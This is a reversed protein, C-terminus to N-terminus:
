VINQMIIEWHHSCIFDFKHIEGVPILIAASKLGSHGGHADSSRQCPFSSNVRGTHHGIRSPPVSVSMSRRWLADANQQALSRRSLDSTRDSLLTTALAGPRPSLWMGSPTRPDLQIKNRLGTRPSFTPGMLRPITAPSRFRRQIESLSVIFECSLHSPWDAVTICQSEDVAAM